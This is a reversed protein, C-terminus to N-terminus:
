YVFLARVCCCFGEFDLFCFLVVGFIVFCWVMLLYLVCCVEVKKGDMSLVVATLTNSGRNFYGKIIQKRTWCFQRVQGQDDAPIISKEAGM